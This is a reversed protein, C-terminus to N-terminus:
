STSLNPPFDNDLMYEETIELCCGFTLGNLVGGSSDRILRFGIQDRSAWSRLTESVLSEDSCFYGTEGAPITFLTTYVTSYSKDGDWVLHRFDFDIDDGSTNTGVYMNAARVIGPQFPFWDVDGGTEAFTPQMLRSTTGNTFENSETSVTFVHNGKAWIPM